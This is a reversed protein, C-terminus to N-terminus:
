KLKNYSYLKADITTSKAKNYYYKNASNLSSIINSLISKNNLKNLFINRDFNINNSKKIINYNLNNSISKSNLFTSLNNSNFNNNCLPLFMKIVMNSYMVLDENNLKNIDIIQKLYNSQYEKTIFCNDKYELSYESVNIKQNNYSNDKSCNLNNDVNDKLINIYKNLLNVICYSNKQNFLENIKEQNCIDNKLNNYNKKLDVYKTKLANYNIINCDSNKTKLFNKYFLSKNKKLHNEKIIENINLISKRITTFPKELKKNCNTCM